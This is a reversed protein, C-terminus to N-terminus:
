TAHAPMAAIPKPGAEAFKWCGFFIGAILLYSVAVAPSQGFGIAEGHILGFYTLVMGALAFAAAKGFKREIVFVLIAGLVIGALTPGGGLVDLGHYLVGVQALKDMGVAAASTGAAGLANDIQLKGWAAITPVLALVV